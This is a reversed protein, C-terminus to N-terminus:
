CMSWLWSKGVLAVSSFAHIHLPGGLSGSLLTGLLLTGADRNAIDKRREFAGINVALHDIQVAIGVPPLDFRM